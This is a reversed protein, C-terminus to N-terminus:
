WEITTITPTGSAAIAWIAGTYGQFGFSKGSELIHGNATTVTADKGLYIIIGSATPNSVEAYIRSTNAAIVVEAATSLANQTTTFAAAVSGGGGTSVPLPNSASIPTGAANVM